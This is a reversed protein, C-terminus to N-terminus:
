PRVARILVDGTGADILRLAGDGSVDFRGVEVLAEFLRREQAALPDPCAMMTAAAPGMTLAEGTLTFPGTFSNCGSHGSVRGSAEFRMVAGSGDVAPADGITEIQWDPGVLLDSPAGGCGRLTRDDWTVEVTEPHPMGTADDRCLDPSVRVTLARGPVAYVVTEGELSPTPLPAETAIAGDDASLRMRGHEVALSWGPDSGEASWPPEPVSPVLECEPLEDGDVSVLASAGRSWFWTGPQDRAEFRAGSASVARGLVYRTGGAEMVMEDGFFGARVHTEGCRFDSAFLMPTHLRLTVLGLDADDTGPAIAIEETVWEPRNEVFIAARLTGGSEQPITLRFPLPVQRGATRVRAIGLRTGQPDLAEVVVRADDPLAIRERYAVEGAIGRLDQALATGAMSAIAAFLLAFLRPM